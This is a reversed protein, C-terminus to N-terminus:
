RQHEINGKRRPFHHASMYMLFVYLYDHHDLATREGTEETFLPCISKSSHVYEFGHQSSSGQSEVFHDGWPVM